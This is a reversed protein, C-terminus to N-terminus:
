ILYKENNVTVLLILNCSLGIIIRFNTDGLEKGIANLHELEFNPVHEATIDSLSFNIAVVKDTISTIELGIIRPHLNKIYDYIKTKRIM